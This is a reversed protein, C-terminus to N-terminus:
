KLSLSTYYINLGMILSNELLVLRFGDQQNVIIINNKIKQQCLFKKMHPLFVMVEDFRDRFPVVLCLTNGNEIEDQCELSSKDVRLNFNIDPYIGLCVFGVFSCVGFVLLVKIFKKKLRRSFITM